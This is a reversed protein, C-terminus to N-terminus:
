QVLDISTLKVNVPELSIGKDTKPTKGDEILRRLGNDNQHDGYGLHWHNNLNQRKTCFHGSLFDAEIVMIYPMRMEVKVANPLRSTTPLKAWYYATDFAIRQADATLDSEFWLEIADTYEVVAKSSLFNYDVTNRLCNGCFNKAGDKGIRGKNIGDTQVRSGCYGCWDSKPLLPLLTKLSPSLNEVIKTLDYTRKRALALNEDFITKKFNNRKM